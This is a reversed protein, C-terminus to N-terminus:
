RQTLWTEYGLRKLQELAEEAQGRTAYAGVQVKFSNNQKIVFTQYGRNEIEQALSRANSEISFFGVQVTFAPGSPPAAETNQVPIEQKPPATIVPKAPTESIESPTQELSPVPSEKEVPKPPIVIEPEISKENQIFLEDNSQQEEESAKVLEERAIPEQETKFEKPPLFSKERAMYFAVSLIVIAGILIILTELNSRAQRKYIRRTRRM